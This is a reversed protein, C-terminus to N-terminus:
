KSKKSKPIHRSMFLGMHLLQKGEGPRSNECFEWISDIMENLRELQEDDVWVAHGGCHHNREKTRPNVGPETAARIHKRAVLRSLARAFDAHYDVNDQDSQNFRTGIMMAKARYLQEYRKGMLRTGVELLLGCEVLKQVHPYLSTRARATFEAIEAASCENMASVADLIEWKIPNALVKMTKTDEIVFFPVTEPADSQTM